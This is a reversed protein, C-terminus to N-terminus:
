FTGTHDGITPDQVAQYIGVHCEVVATDRALLQNLGVHHLGWFCLKGRITGVADVALPQDGCILVIGQGPVFPYLPRIGRHRPPM